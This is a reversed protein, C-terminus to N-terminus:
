WRPVVDGLQDAYAVAAAALARQGDSEALAAEDLVVIHGDADLEAAADHRDTGRM